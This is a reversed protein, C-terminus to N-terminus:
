ASSKKQDTKESYCLRLPFCLVHVEPKGLWYNINGVLERASIDTKIRDMGLSWNIFIELPRNTNNTDKELECSANDIDMKTAARLTM